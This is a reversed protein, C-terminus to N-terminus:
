GETLAALPAGIAAGLADFFPVDASAFADKRASFLALVGVARDDSRVPILVVSANGEEALLEQVFPPAFRDRGVVRVSSSGASVISTFSEAITGTSPHGMMSRLETPRASWVGVIVIEQRELHRVRFGVRSLRLVEPMQKAIGGAADDATPADSVADRVRDILAQTLDPRVM